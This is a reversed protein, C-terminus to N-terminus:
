LKKSFPAVTFHRILITTKIKLNIKFFNFIKILIFTNIDSNKILNDFNICIKFIMFFNIFNVSM